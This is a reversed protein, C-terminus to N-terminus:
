QGKLRAGGASEQGVCGGSLRGQLDTHALAVQKQDTAVRAQSPRQKDERSHEFSLDSTM